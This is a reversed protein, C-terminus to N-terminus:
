LKDSVRDSIRIFNRKLLSKLTMKTRQLVVFEREFSDGIMHYIFGSVQRNNDSKIIKISSPLNSLTENSVVGQACRRRQL